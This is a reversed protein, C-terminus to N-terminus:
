KNSWSGGRLVRNKGSSPGTPNDKASNKYYNEDYWDACLEWVNGAMDYLGLSNPPYSKVPVTGEVSDYNAESQNIENKGTGYKVKKGGERAGYEWEAETPLRYKEGTKENLRKLFEQIDNWSVREVPM